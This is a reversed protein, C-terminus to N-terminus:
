KQPEVGLDRHTKPKIRLNTTTATKNRVKLVIRADDLDDDADDSHREHKLLRRRRM